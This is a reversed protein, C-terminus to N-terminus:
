PQSYPSTLLAPVAYKSTTSNGAGAILGRM